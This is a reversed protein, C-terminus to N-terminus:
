RRGFLVAVCGLSHKTFRANALGLETEPTPRRMADEVAHDVVRHDDVAHTCNPLVRDARVVEGSKRSREPEIARRPGTAIPSM